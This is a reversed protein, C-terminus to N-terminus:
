DTKSKVSKKKLGKRFGEVSHGPAQLYGHVPRKKVYGLKKLWNRAQRPKLSIDLRRKLFEVVVIGDWRFRSLGYEEPSRALAEELQQVVNENLQGPRGPRADDELCSLGQRNAKNIWGIVSQRSLNLLKAVATSKWGSLLLLLGAIRFGIWAGKILEAQQLLSQRTIEPHLLQLPKM